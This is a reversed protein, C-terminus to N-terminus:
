ELVDDLDAVKAPAKFAAKKIPAKKAAPKKAAPKKAAAKRAVPKTADNTVSKAAARQPATRKRTGSKGAKEAVLALAEELTIAEPTIEKPLTANIKGWKIYPGYRGPMVQLEGGDPHEGLSKLPKAPEAGDRGPGRAAKQALVEVARNM